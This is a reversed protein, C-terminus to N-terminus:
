RLRPLNDYQNDIFHVSNETVPGGTFALTLGCSSM